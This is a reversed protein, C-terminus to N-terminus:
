ITGSEGAGRREAVVPSAEGSAVSVEAEASAAVVVDAHLPVWRPRGQQSLRAPVQFQIAIAVNM